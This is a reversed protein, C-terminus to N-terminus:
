VRGGVWFGCGAAAVFIQDIDQVDLILSMCDEIMIRAALLPEQDLRRRRSRAPAGPGAEAGEEAVGPGGGLELLPRPRRINSFPVRGLGDLHVFAVQDASLKETPALERVATHAHPSGPPRRRPLFPITPKSSVRVSPPHPRASFM